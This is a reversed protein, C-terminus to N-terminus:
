PGGITIELKKSVSKANNSTVPIGFAALDVVSRTSAVVARDIARQQWRGDAFWALTLLQTDKHADIGRETVLVPWAMGVESGGDDGTREVGKASVRWGKPVVIGAGAPSDPFLESVLTQTSDATVPRGNLAKLIQRADRLVDGIKIGRVGLDRLRGLIQSCAGDLAEPYLLVATELATLKARAFMKMDATGVMLGLAADFISIFLTGRISIQYHELRGIFDLLAFRERDSFSLLEDFFFLPTTAASRCVSYLAEAADANLLDAISMTRSEGNIIFRLIAPGGTTAQGAADNCGPEPTHQLQNTMATIRERRVTKLSV